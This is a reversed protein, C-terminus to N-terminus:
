LRQTIVIIFTERNNRGVSKIRPQHLLTVLLFKKQLFYFTNQCTEKDRQIDTVSTLEDFLEKLRM